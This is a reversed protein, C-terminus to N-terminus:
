SYGCDEVIDSKLLEIANVHFHENIPNDSPLTFHGGNGCIALRAIRQQSKPQDHSASANDHKSILEITLTPSKEAQELLISCEAIGSLAHFVRHLPALQVMFPQIMRDESGAPEFIGFMVDRDENKGSVLLISPTQIPIHHRLEDLNLQDGKESWSISINQPLIYHPLIVDLQSLIPPSLINTSSPIQRQHSPQTSIQQLIARM